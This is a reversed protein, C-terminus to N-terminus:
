AQALVHATHLLLRQYLRRGRYDLDTWYPGLIDGPRDLWALERRHVSWLQTFGLGAPFGDIMLSFLRAKGTRWRRLMWWRSLVSGGSRSHQVAVMPDLPRTRDCEIVDADHRGCGQKEVDWDYFAMVRRDGIAYRLVSM